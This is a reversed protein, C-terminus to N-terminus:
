LNDAVWAAFDAFADRMSRQRDPGYTREWKENSVWRYLPGTPGNIHALPIEPHGLIDLVMEAVDNCSAVDVSTVNVPGDYPERMITLIKDVADDIHLYGRVQKGVGWIDLPGGARAARL